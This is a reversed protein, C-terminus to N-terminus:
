KKSKKEKEEISAGLIDGLLAGTDTSGYEKMIKKEEDIEYAKISLTIQRTKMDVNTIKADVKEDVAFREPKQESKTKSLDSTKIFGPIDNVDVVIGDEKIEKVVCTVVEGKKVKDLSSAVRDEKLQKIGLSIREKDADIELIKTKIVMGKQYDKVAEEPNKDWDIDSLHVMGDLDNGLSVFIGFETINKIEGEIVDSVSHTQEFEKWPNPTCQKLGLSIRRKERDIELVMVDVESSVSLVKSPQLNKKTWSIESVHVLGEIGDELDIFAGYDTLNTVIGKYIKGVEFKEINQWPDNELQKMGLSVRSTEPDFNIVKVNIKQGITFLENPNSVRKWSIDTIHLLGDVGGLDIFVGYDTINKIVGEMVDGIKINKIIEDRKEARDGELIARHSVILNSRLKDMKIIKFEMPKNMISNIDKIPNIDLQSSPMFAPVGNLDVTFGGRVREIIKGEVVKNDAVLQEIEKWVEEKRAKERSAILTGDHGEYREVFVDVIDGVKIQDNRFERIDIAGESKLGVNVIVFDKKIDVITGKTVYGELKASSNYMQNFLEAFNEGTSFNEVDANFVSKKQTM